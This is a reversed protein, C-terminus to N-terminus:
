PSGMSVSFTPAANGSGGNLPMGPLAPSSMSKIVSIPLASPAITSNTAYSPVSKLPM